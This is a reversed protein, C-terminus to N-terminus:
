ASLSTSQDFQEYLRDYRGGSFCIEGSPTLFGRFMVGDYYPLNKVRGLDVIVDDVGITELVDILQKLRQLVALLEPRDKWKKEYTAIVEKGGYANILGILTQSLDTQDYSQLIDTIRDEKKDHMAIRLNEEEIKTLGISDILLNFISSHGLEIVYQGITLQNLYQVATLLCETEGYFRDAHVIEIGAQRSETGDKDIRFVSGQYSWKQESPRQNAIARAVAATWDPRLVEIEGDNNFWKLMYELKMGAMENIFTNAYEVVPTSIPKFHRMESVRRFIDSARLRNSIQVGTEDQSGEPLFM